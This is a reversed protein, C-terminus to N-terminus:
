VKEALASCLDYMHASTIESNNDVLKHLMDTVQQPTAGMYKRELNVFQVALAKLCERPPPMFLLARTLLCQIALEAVKRINRWVRRPKGIDSATSTCRDMLRQVLKVGDELKLQNFIPVCENGKKYNYLIALHLDLWNDRQEATSAEILRQDDDLRLCRRCQSVLKLAFDECKADCLVDLRISLLIAKEALCFELM